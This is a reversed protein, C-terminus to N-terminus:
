GSRVQLRVDKRSVPKSILEDDHQQAAYNDLIREARTQKRRRSRRRPLPIEHHNRKTVGMDMQSNRQDAEFGSPSLRTLEPNPV